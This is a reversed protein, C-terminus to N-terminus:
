DIEPTEEILKNYQDLKTQSNFTIQGDELTWASKNDGLFTLIKNMYDFVESIQTKTEKLEANTKELDESETAEEIAEKYVEKYYDSIEKEDLLTLMKEKSCTEIVKDLYEETKTKAESIKAKTQVFEPGDNKINEESLLNEFTEEDFIDDAQKSLEAVENIYSKFTEEVIAFKGTTKIEMDIQVNKNITGNEDALNELTEMAKNIEANLLEVQNGIYAFYGIVSVALIVLVIIIAIIIGKKSKGKKANENSTVKKDEM